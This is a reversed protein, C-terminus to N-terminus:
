RRDHLHRSERGADRVAAHQRVAAGRHHVRSTRHACGRLIGRARRSVSATSTPSARSTRIVSRLVRGEFVPHAGVRNTRLMLGRRARAVGRARWRAVARVTRASPASGFLLYVQRWDRAFGDLLQHYRALRARSEPSDSRPVLESRLDGVLYDVEGPSMVPRLPSQETLLGGDRSADFRARSRCRPQRGAGRVALLERQRLTRSSISARTPRRIRSATCRWNDFLWAEGGRMHVTEGGCHFLVEPRTVIPIHVRVRYFWHYNIDAHEPVVAGPDLRLLRSRSWVVGFSALIQRV